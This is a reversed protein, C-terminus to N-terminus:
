EAPKGGSAADLCPPLSACDPAESVCRRIVSVQRPSLEVGGYEAECEARLKPVTAALDLKALEEPSMTKRADEASCETLRECMAKVASTQAAGLKAEAAARRDPEAAPTAAPKDSSGGCAALALALAFARM